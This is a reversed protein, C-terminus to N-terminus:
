EQSAFNKCPPLERLCELSPEDSTYLPCCVMPPRSKKDSSNLRSFVKDFNASEDKLVKLKKFATYEATATEGISPKYDLFIKEKYTNTKIWSEFFRYYTEANLKISKSAIELSRRIKALTGFETFADGPLLAVYNFFQVTQQSKPLDAHSRMRVVRGKLQAYQFYELPPDLIHLQATKLLSIGEYFRPDLIVINIGGAEYATLIEQIKAQSFTTRIHVFTFDVEAQREKLFKKVNEITKAYESHIVYRRNSGAKSFHKMINRFMIYFKEPFSGLPASNSIIRGYKKFTWKNVYVRDKEDDKDDDEDDKDNDAEDDAWIDDFTGVVAVDDKDLSDFIFKNWLGSQFGDYILYENTDTQTPVGDVGPTLDFFSVYPSIVANLAKFDVKAYKLEEKDKEGYIMKMIFGSVGVASALILVHEIALIDEDGLGYKARLAKYIALKAQTAPKFYVVKSITDLIDDIIKPYPVSPIEYGAKKVAYNALYQVSTAGVFTFLQGRLSSLLRPIHKVIPKIYGNIAVNAKDPIGFTKYFKGVDILRVGAAINAYFAIDSLDSYIPTGTLILARFPTKIQAKFIKRAKGWDTSDYVADALYQAEDFIVIKGTLFKLDDEMKTTYEKYSLVTTKEDLPRKLLKISESTWVSKLFKPCVIVKERDPFNLLFMLGTLTKGGGMKHAVLMGHQNVCSAVLHDIVDRQHEEPTITKSM